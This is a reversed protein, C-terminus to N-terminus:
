AATEDGQKLFLRMFKAISEKLLRKKEDMSGKLNKIMDIITKKLYSIQKRLKVVGPYMETYDERLIKKKIIADQLEKVKTALLTNATDGLGAVSIAELNKGSKVQKYLTGLMEEQMSIESLKAEQESMQRIVNEAKSSLSVTNSSRKFEELKLASGKLNETILKLQKDIFDLKLTAEKTKKEISQQLYAKALANTFEQARLAVNDEYSIKLVSSNKSVQSVSVSEQAISGRKRPDYVVFRYKSNTMEKTKVVNLHFHETDIEKGYPLVADYSWSTKNEDEADDVVLRYTKEDVPYLDYSVEYGRLMGVKFPSNKYLDVEKLKRTTYYRHTIDVKEAAKNALYRSKVIVIETDINAAEPSMVMSLMDQAGSYGKGEKGVEVTTSARYVNPAFYAYIASGLGFLIVVFVIMYRYRYITLFLEKLDIEDEDIQNHPSQM